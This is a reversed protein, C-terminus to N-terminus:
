NPPGAGPTPPLPTRSWADARDCATEVLRHVAHGAWASSSVDVWGGYSSIVTDGQILRVAEGGNSLGDAGIRGDVRFLATGPRPAPDAAGSPDYGSTVILGYAGGPLTGAPLTDGGRSDQIVLGEVSLPEDGLNRIEVYEQAPEPGAPNALVETLVLPPIAPPTTLALPASEVVNGARDAARVTVTAAASPPLLSTPVAVDFDTLGAGAPVVSEVGDAGLVIAGTAPEDTSFRVGICPGAVEISVGTLVPPTEDAAAATAFQGILGAPVEHGDGDVAGAGLEIRCSAAAPLPGGLAARYCAGGDCDSQEPAAVPVAAPAGQCVRLGDAPLTVPAPFRVVVAAPNVPVDAAGAVPDVLVGGAPGPAPADAATARPQRTLDTEPACGVVFALLFGLVSGILFLSFADFGDLDIRM